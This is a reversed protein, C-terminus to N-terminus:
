PLPICETEGPVTPFRGAQWDAKAQELRDETGAVFNWWLHRPGDLPAGGLLLIRSPELAAIARAAGPTLVVLQGAKFVTGALTIRGEIVYVGREEYEAPVELRADAALLAHAYFLPSLIAVPSEKGFLKGAILTVDLGDGTIHPLSSAEYHAFAPATEAHSMPLAVWSQLGWLRHTGDRAEPPSRESHTIGRGATMWNVDGPQIRQVTGLSDRHMIEGELLYTVTALGIHPHPRVDLGTGAPPTVPGMQDLFVWPGVARRKAFPLVRQVTFGDGLDRTRPEIVLEIAATDYDDAASMEAEKPL